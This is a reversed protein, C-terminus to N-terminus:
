PEVGIISWNEAIPNRPGTFAIQLQHRSMAGQGVGSATVRLRVLNMAVGTVDRPILGPGTAPHWDAGTGGMLGPLLIRSQGIVQWTWTQTNAWDFVYAGAPIVTPAEITLGLDYPVVEGQGWANLDLPLDTGGGEGTVLGYYYHILPGGGMATFDLLTQWEGHVAGAGTGIFLQCSNPTVVAPNDQDLFYYGVCGWARMYPGAVWGSPQNGM